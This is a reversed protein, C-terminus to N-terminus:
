PNKIRKAAARSMMKMLWEDAEEHTKFRYVGKPMYGIGLTQQLQSGAEQLRMGYEVPDMLVRRGVTKGITDEMNIPSKM